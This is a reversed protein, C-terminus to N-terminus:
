KFRKCKVKKKLKRKSNTNFFNFTNWNKETLILIIRVWYQDNKLCKKYNNVYKDTLSLKNSVRVSTIPM